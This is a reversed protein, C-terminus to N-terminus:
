KRFQQMLPSIRQSMNNAWNYQQQTLQGSNMLYKIISDPSGAYQQPINLRRDLLFQMPNNSFQQFQAMMNQMSGFPDNM